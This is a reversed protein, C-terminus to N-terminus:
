KFKAVMLVPNDDDTLKSAVEKLEGKQYAEILEYVQFM